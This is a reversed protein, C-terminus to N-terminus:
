KYIADKFRFFLIPALTQELYSQAKLNKEGAYELRGEDLSVDGPHGRPVVPCFNLLLRSLGLVLQFRSRFDPARIFTLPFWASWRM